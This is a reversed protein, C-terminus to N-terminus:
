PSLMEELEATPSEVEWVTGKKAEELMWDTLTTASAYKHLSFERVLGLQNKIPALPLAAKSKSAPRSACISLAGEPTTSCIDLINNERAWADMYDVIMLGGPAITPIFFNILGKSDIRVETKVFGPEESLGPSNALAWFVIHKHMGDFYVPLFLSQTNYAPDEPNQTKM